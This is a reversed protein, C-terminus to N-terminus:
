KLFMNIGSAALFFGSCVLIISVIFAIIFEITKVRAKQPVDNWAMRVFKYACFCVIAALCILMLAGIIDLMPMAIKDLTAQTITIFQHTTSTIPVEQSWTTTAM